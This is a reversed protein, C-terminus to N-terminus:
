WVAEKLRDKSGTEPSTLYLVHAKQVYLIELGARSLFQPKFTGRPPRLERSSLAFLASFGIKM